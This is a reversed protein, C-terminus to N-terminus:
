PCGAAFRSQYCVFDNVNLTASRDCDAYPDAAAFRSQFCVFDNVNLLPTTTSSDCNAYCVAIPTLVFQLTPAPPLQSIGRGLIQGADNIGSVGTMVIQLAPDILPDLNENGREPTWLWM